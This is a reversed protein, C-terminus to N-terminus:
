PMGLMGVSGIPLMGRGRGQDLRDRGLPAVIGRQLREVLLRDPVGDLPELGGARRDDGVALLPLVM